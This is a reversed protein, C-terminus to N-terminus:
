KEDQHNKPDLHGVTKLRQYLREVEEEDETRLLQYKPSELPKKEAEPEDGWFQRYAVGDLLAERSM